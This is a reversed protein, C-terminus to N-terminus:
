FIPKSFLLQLIIVGSPSAGPLCSALVWYQVLPALFGIGEFTPCMRPHLPSPTVIYPHCKISSICVILESHPDCEETWLKTLLAPVTVLWRQCLAHWRYILIQCELDLHYRRMSRRRLLLWVWEVSTNLSLQILPTSLTGRWTILHLQFPASPLPLDGMYLWMLLVFEWSLVSSRCIFKNSLCCGVRSSWRGEGNSPKQIWSIQNTLM